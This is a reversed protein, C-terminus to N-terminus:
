ALGPFLSTLGSAIMQVGISSLLLGMIRTAINLGTVGMARGIPEALRLALWVLLAVAIVCGCLILTYEPSLIM